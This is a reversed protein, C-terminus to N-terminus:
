FLLNMKVTYYMRFWDCNLFYVVFSHIIIKMFSFIFTVDRARERWSQEIKRVSAKGTEQELHRKRQGVKMNDKNMMIHLM